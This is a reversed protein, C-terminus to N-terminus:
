LVIHFFDVGHSQTFRHSPLQSGGGLDSDRRGFRSSPIAFPAFAGLPGTNSRRKASILACVIWRPLGRIQKAKGRNRAIICTAAGRLALCGGHSPDIHRKGREVPDIRRSRPLWPFGVALLGPIELPRAVQEAARAEPGIELLQTLGHALTVLG